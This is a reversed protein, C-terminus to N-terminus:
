SAGQPFAAAVSELAWRSSPTMSLGFVEEFARAVFPVARAVSMPTKGERVLSTVECGALGCPMIAAFPTLDNTVNLAFGHRTVGEAIRVGISAIKRDEIWVGPRGSWRGAVLGMVALAHILVEELLAVYAKPGACHNRLRLIPYGILQGPGHYTVAGGRDAEYVPIGNIPGIIGERGLHEPRSTRGLTYVPYHETLVLMDGLAGEVRARHLDKQLACADTYESLGLDLLFSAVACEPTM